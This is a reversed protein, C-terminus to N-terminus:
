KARKTYVALAVASAAGVAIIASVTIAGRMLSHRGSRVHRQEAHLRAMADMWLGHIKSREEDSTARSLADKWFEVEARIGERLTSEEAESSKGVADAIKGLSASAAKPDGPSSNNLAEKLLVDVDIESPSEQGKEKKRRLLGDLVKGRREQNM